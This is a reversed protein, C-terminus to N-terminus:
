GENEEDELPLDIQDLRNLVAWFGMSIFTMMTPYHSLDSLEVGTVEELVMCAIGLSGWVGAMIAFFTKM